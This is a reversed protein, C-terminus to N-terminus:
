QLFPNRTPIKAKEETNETPEIIVESDKSDSTIQELTNKDLFSLDLKVGITEPEFASIDTGSTIFKQKLVNVVRAEQREKANHYTCLTTPETGTLYVRKGKGENCANTLLLGSVACVEAEEIGTPPKYFEKYPMGKNAEYMYEAWAWGTLTSGTITPGLSQGRSDFGFWFASTYYPSFGVTWADDSNQTTGTKGAMPMEFEDGNSNEYTFREGWYSPRRLTGAQVTGELLHTMIYATQPSIFQTAEGKAEQAQRIEKEPEIIVVGDKNEVTRIALPVIEKGKSPFTAFATAMEIPTVACVGLALPYYPLLGRAEYDESPIKLLKGAREIVATFGTGELVKLTPVNMSTALAYWLQVPGEWTGLYNQPIYPTGDANKFVHPADELVTSETFKKSDIAASYMLPKFSSGPQLMAQTARIFQNDQTYESGGVLATIYGTNNEISIMTGEVTTKKKDKSTLATSKNVVGVKLEEIDFMLSLVDLMPNIENKYASIAQLEVRQESVKLEPINFVLSILETLPAYTKIDERDGTTSLDYRRNAEEIYYEMIDQAALQHQMNMTTHVTYGDTYVNMTGYMMNELERRVYESFWPAKDDRMYFASSSIRTYDFNLWFDEFQSNANEQTLFGFNVMEDLVYKQREMARNPNEFPNYHSPNSLLIVLLASEAATIEQAPHGFYYESASNVGYTGDGLYVQNMYLELIEEKSYRREMQIAWWLEEIKRSITIETRDLYLTGAIQQTLTSGGGLSLNFVQGIVARIIAPISFGNHEFFTNDERTILADILHQPIESIEVVKRKEDSSFETILEGNIDLLRTPLTTGFEAFQETNIVNVTGALLGGLAGGILLTFFLGVGLVICVNRKNKKM